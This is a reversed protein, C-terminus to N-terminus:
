RPTTDLHPLCAHNGRRVWALGRATIELPLNEIGIVTRQRQGAKTTCTQASELELLSSFTTLPCAFPASAGSGSVTNGNPEHYAGYRLRMRLLRGRNQFDLNLVCHCIEVIEGIRGLQRCRGANCRRGRPREHRLYEDGIDNRHIALRSVADIDGSGVLNVQSGAGFRALELRCM